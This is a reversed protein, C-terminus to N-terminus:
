GVGKGDKREGEEDGIVRKKHTGEPIRSLAGVDISRNPMPIFSPSGSLYLRIQCHPAPLSTCFTLM